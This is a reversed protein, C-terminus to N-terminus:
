KLKKELLAYVNQLSSLSPIKDEPIAIKYKKEIGAIIELAKMSDVELDKYFGSDDKVKELPVEAIESVLKRLEKKVKEFDIKKAM